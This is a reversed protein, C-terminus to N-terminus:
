DYCIIPITLCLGEFEWMSVLTKTKSYFRNQLLYFSMLHLSYDKNGKVSSEKEVGLIVIDNQLVMYIKCVVAM